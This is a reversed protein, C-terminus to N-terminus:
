WRHRPGRGRGWGRFSGSGRSAPWSRPGTRARCRGKSPQYANSAAGRRVSTSAVSSNTQVHGLEGSAGVELEDALVGPQVHAVLQDTDLVEGRFRDAPDEVDGEEEADEVVCGIRQAIELPHAADGALVREDLGDDVHEVDIPRREGVVRAVVEVGIRAVVEAGVQQGEDAQQLIGAEGADVVETHPALVFDFERALRERHLLTTLPRETTRRPTARRV